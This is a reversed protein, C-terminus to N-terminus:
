GYGMKAKLQNSSLGGFIGRPYNNMWDQIHRVYDEPYQSIDAGKPIWRRIMKNQNENSGREYSSYPHCYYLSTRQTNSKYSKMIRKFDLFEVGNDCTISKFRERFAKIGLTRELRNLSKCVENLTRSTMKLIYEERTKRETLVLLAGKKGLGSVVTDMEWHGYINRKKVSDPRIEISMGKISHLARPRKIKSNRSVKRPMPLSQMTLGMFLGKKIYNYLTTKCVHTQFTLQESKIKSLVAYPSYKKEGIMREVYKVFDYDNGIKLDRGKNTVNYEYKRQAVDACYTEYTLFNKDLFTIKGRNLENYITALCKGLIPAIEKPKYGQRYLVEIQYRENETLYKDKMTYGRM